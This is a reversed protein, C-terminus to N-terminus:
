DKNWAYYVVPIIKTQCKRDWQWLLASDSIQFELPSLKYNSSSLDQCLAHSKQNDKKFKLYKEMKDRM